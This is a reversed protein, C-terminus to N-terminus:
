YTNQSPVFLILTDSQQVNIGFTLHLLTLVSSLEPETFEASLPYTAIASDQVEIKRGFYKGLKEAVERLPTGDFALENTKWAIDNHDFQEEAFLESTLKRYVAKENMGLIESKDGTSVMVRGSMVRVTVEDSEPRADVIFSTGLVRITLKGAEIEFPKEADHAIDFFAEGRLEVRRVNEESPLYRIETARHLVVTSSDPLLVSKTEDNAVSYAIILVEPKTETRQLIGIGVGVLLALGAAVSAIRWLQLRKPKTTTRVFRQHAAEGDFQRKADHHKASIFAERSAQFENLNEPSLKVWTLIMLKEDESAEGAFFKWFLSQPEINDITTQM